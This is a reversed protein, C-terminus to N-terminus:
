ITRRGSKSALIMQRQAALALQAADAQPCAPKLHTDSSNTAVKIQRFHIEIVIRTGEHWSIEIGTQNPYPPQTTAPPPHHFIRQEKM